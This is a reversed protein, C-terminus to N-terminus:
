CGGAPPPLPALGANGLVRAGSGSITVTGCFANNLLTANSGAIQTAGVVRSFAMGFDSGPVTLAGTIRAGRARNRSGSVEVNGNLTVSGGRPGEGFLTVDSGAFRLDGTYTGARFFVIINSRALQANVTSVPMAPTVEVVEGGFAYQVDAMLNAAGATLAVALERLDRDAIAAQLQGTSGGGSLTLTRTGATIPNLVVVGAADTTGSPGSTVSVTVGSQTTGPAPLTAQNVANLTPNVVIVFTTEGFPVETPETSSGGCNLMLAAALLSLCLRHHRSRRSM